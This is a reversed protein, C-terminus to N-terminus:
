GATSPPHCSFLARVLSAIEYGPHPQLEWDGQYEVDFGCGPQRDPSAPRQAGPRGRGGVAPLAARAGLGAWERYQGGGQLGGVGPLAGAEGEGGCRTAAWPTLILGDRRRHLGPANEREDQRGWPLSALQAESLQPAPRVATESSAKPADEEWVKKVGSPPSPTAPPTGPLSPVPVGAGEGPVEDTKRVSDQGMETWAAGAYPGSDAPYFGLWSLTPRAPRM